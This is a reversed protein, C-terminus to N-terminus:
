DPINFATKAPCAPLDSGGDRLFTDKLSASAKEITDSELDLYSGTTLLGTSAPHLLPLLAVLINNFPIRYCFCISECFDCCSFGPIFGASVGTGGSTSSCFSLSYIGRPKFIFLKSLVEVILDLELELLSGVSYIVLCNALYTLCLGTRRDFLIVIFDKSAILIDFNTVSASFCRFSSIFRSCLSFLLSAVVSCIQSM